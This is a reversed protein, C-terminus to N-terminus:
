QGIRQNEGIRKGGARSAGYGAAGADSWKQWGSLDRRHREGLFAAVSKTERNVYNGGNQVEKGIMIKVMMACVGQNQLTLCM